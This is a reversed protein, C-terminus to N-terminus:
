PACPGPPILLDRGGAGAQAAALRPGGWALQQVRSWLEDRGAGTEASFALLAGPELHLDESAQRLQADVKSRGIKDAKTAVVLCPRGALRLFELMAHDLPQPPHRIDILVVVARLTDRTHVYDTIFQGWEERKERSAVAYGYGPMDVLYLGRGGDRAAPRVDYINLTQTRGPTRSTRALKRHGLLRNVLSSKGVNSRGALAIEPRGDLPFQKPQTASGFFSAQVQLTEM